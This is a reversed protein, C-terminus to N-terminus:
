NMMDRGLSSVVRWLAATSALVGVFREFGDFGVSSGLPLDGRFLRCLWAEEVVGTACPTLTTVGDVDADAGTLGAFAEVERLTRRDSMGAILSSVGVSFFSGKPPVDLGM